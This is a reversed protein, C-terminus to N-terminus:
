HLVSTPSPVLKEHWYALQKKRASILLSPTRDRDQRWPETGGTKFGAYVACDLVCGRGEVPM